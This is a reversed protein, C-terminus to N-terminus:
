KGADAVGRSPAASVVQPCARWRGSQLSRYETGGLIESQLSLWGAGAALRAVHRKLEDAQPERNLYDRYWARVLAAHVAPDGVLLRAVVTPRTAGRLAALGRALESEDPARGALDRYVAALFTEPTTAARSKTYDPHSFISATVSELPTGVDLRKLFFATEEPDPDRSLFKAFARRVAAERAPAGVLVQAALTARAVDAGGPALRALAAARETLTSESPAKAEVDASLGLLFHRGPEAALRCAADRLEPPLPPPAQPPPVHAAVYLGLAAGVADLLKRGSDFSLSRADDEVFGAVTPIKHGLEHGLLATLAGPTLNRITGLHFLIPGREGRRTIATVTRPGFRDTATLPVTSLRFPTRAPDAAAIWDEIKDVLFARCDARQRDSLGSLMVCFLPEGAERCGVPRCVSEIDLGSAMQRLGALARDRVDDLPTGFIDGGGYGEGGGFLAAAEAIGLVTPGDARAPSAAALALAVLAGAAEPVRKAVDDGTGRRRRRRRAIARWAAQFLLMQIAGAGFTGLGAYALARGAIARDGLRAVADPTLGPLTVLLESPLEFLTELAPRDKPAVPAGTAERLKREAAGRIASAIGRHWSSTEGPTSRKGDLSRAVLTLLGGSAAAALEPEPDGSTVKGSRKVPASRSGESSGVGTALVTMRFRQKAESSTGAIKDVLDLQSETGAAAPAGRLVLAPADAEPEGPAVDRAERTERRSTPAKLGAVPGRELVPATAIEPAGRTAEPGGERLAFPRPAFPGIPSEIGDRRPDTALADFHGVSAERPKWEDFFAPEDKAARLLYARAEALAEAPFAATTGAAAAASASGAGAGSSSGAGAARAGAGGPAPRSAAEGGTTDGAPSAGPTDGNSPSAPGPLTTGSAGPAPGSTGPAPGDGAQMAKVMDLARTVSERIGLGDIALEAGALSGWTLLLIAAWRLITRM